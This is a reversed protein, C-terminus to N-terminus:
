PQKGYTFKGLVTKYSASLCGPNFIIMGLQALAASKSSHIYKETIIIGGELMTKATIKHGIEGNKM